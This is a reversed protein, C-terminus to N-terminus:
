NEERRFRPECLLSVAYAVEESLPQISFLLHLIPLIPPFRHPWARIHTMMKLYHSGILHLKHWNLHTPSIMTRNGEKMFMFDSLYLTLPPLAEPCEGLRRRLSSYGRESSLLANFDALLASQQRPLAHWLRQMRMLPTSELGSMIAKMSNIAQLNHLHKAVRIFFVLTGVRDAFTVRSNAIHAITMECLFNHLKIALRVNPALVDSPVVWSTQAFERPQFASMFLDDLMAIQRAVDRPKFHTLGLQTCPLLSNAPHLAIAVQMEPTYEEKCEAMLIRWCLEVLTRVQKKPEEVVM